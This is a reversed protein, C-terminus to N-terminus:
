YFEIGFECAMTKLEKYNEKNVPIGEKLGRQSMRYELEGPIYIDTVGPLKKGSKIDEILRELREKFLSLYMVKEINLVLIFNGLNPIHDFDLLPHTIRSGYNGGSLVGSLVDVVLGLGYGKPGGVPLVVGDLAAQPDTTPQGYKDLAWGEPIKEGKQLAVRIKGVAPSIAMDLVLPYERGTPIAFCLPNTGIKAELGGTPAVFPPTNCTMMALM